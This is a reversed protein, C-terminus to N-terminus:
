EEADVIEGQDELSASEAVEALQRQRMTELRKNVEEAMSVNHNVEVNVDFGGKIGARDLIETSAKLRIADAVGPKTLELMTDIALGTNEVMRMRAVLLTAEAKKKVAPLSGGHIFCM